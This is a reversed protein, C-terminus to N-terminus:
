AASLQAWTLSTIKALITQFLLVCGINVLLILLILLVVILCLTYSTIHVIKYEM